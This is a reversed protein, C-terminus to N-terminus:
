VETPYIAEERATALRWEMEAIQRERAQIVYSTATNSDFLLQVKLFVLSRQMHLQNAPVGATVYDTWGTSADEIFFGDVPGIGIQQLHSFVSNIHLLIDEDFATYEAPLGLVAKISTLISNEM